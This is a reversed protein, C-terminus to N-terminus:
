FIARCMTTSALSSPHWSRLFTFDFGTITTEGSIELETAGPQSANYLSPLRSLGTATWYAPDLLGIQILGGGIDWIPAQLGAIVGTSSDWIVSGTVTILTGAPPRRQVPITEYTPMWTLHDWLIEMQTAEPASTLLLVLMMSLILRGIM